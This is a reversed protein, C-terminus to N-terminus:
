PPPAYVVHSLHGTLKFTNKPKPAGLVTLIAVDEAGDGGSCIPTIPVTVATSAHDPVPRSANPAAPEIPAPDPAPNELTEMM